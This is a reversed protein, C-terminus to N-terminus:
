NNDNGFYITLLADPTDYVLPAGPDKYSGGVLGQVYYPINNVPPQGSPIGLGAHAYGWAHTLEHLILAETNHVAGPTPAGFHVNEMKLKLGQVGWAIYSVRESIFFKYRFNGDRMAQNAAQRFENYNNPYPIAPPNGELARDLLGINANFADIFKPANVVFVFRGYMKTFERKTQETWNTMQPDQFPAADPDTPLAFMSSLSPMNKFIRDQDNLVVKVDDLHHQILYDADIPDLGINVLQNKFSFTTAHITVMDAASDEQGDNVVLSIVYTGEVDPTISPMVITSDDLSATSGNPASMIHWNYSLPDNDSDDSASGDLTVLDGTHVDRDYGAEAHPVANTEQTTATIVVEDATSSLQGDSVVLEINYTGAVDPVFSPHSTTADSLQATTGAPADVITWQFSLVDNANADSSTAGDLNVEMGTQVNRDNGAHAVPRVNGTAAVVTVRSPESEANGDSVILEFVYDGDQDPTFKPHSTSSESLQVKSEGPKSVVSWVYQLADRDADTSQAGDLRVLDGTVVHQERGANAVPITNEVTPESENGGSSCAITFFAVLIIAVLANINKFRSM